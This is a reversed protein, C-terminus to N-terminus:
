PLGAPTDPTLLLMHFLKTDDTGHGLLHLREQLGHLILFLCFPGPAHKKLAPEGPQVHHHHLAADTLDVGRDAGLDQAVAKRHSVDQVGADCAGQTRLQVDAIQHDTLIGHIMIKVADMEAIGHPLHGPHIHHRERRVPLQHCQSHHRRLLHM